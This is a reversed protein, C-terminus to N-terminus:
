IRLDAINKKLNLDTDNELTKLEIHMQILPCQFLLKAKM